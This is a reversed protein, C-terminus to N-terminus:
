QEAEEIEGKLEASEKDKKELIEKFHSVSKTLDTIQTEYKVLTDNVISIVIGLYSARCKGCNKEVSSQISKEISPM